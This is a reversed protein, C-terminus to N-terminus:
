EPLGVGKPVDLGDARLGEIHFCIADRIETEVKPVTAGTAICGPLDPVYASFNNGVKEIVVAYLM